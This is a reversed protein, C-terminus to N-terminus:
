DNKKRRIMSVFKIGVGLVLLSYGVNAIEEAIREDKPIMSYAVDLDMSVANGDLFGCLRGGSWFLDNM